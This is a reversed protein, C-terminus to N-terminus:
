PMGTEIPLGRVQWGMIGGYLNYVESFGRSDLYRAVQDSRVGTACYVLVPRNRPIEGIRREIQDIPILKGGPIRGQVYEGLTRVDLLYPAPTRKLLTGADSANLNRVAAVAPLAAFLATLLVIPLLLKSRLHM